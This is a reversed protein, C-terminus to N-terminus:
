AERRYSLRAAAYRGGGSAKVKEMQKCQGAPWRQNQNQAARNPKTPNTQNQEPEYKAFAKLVVGGAVLRDLGPGPVKLVAAEVAADRAGYLLEAAVVVAVRGARGLGAAATSLFFM